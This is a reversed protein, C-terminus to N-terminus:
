TIRGVDRPGVYENVASDTSLASGGQSDLDLFFIIKLHFCCLGSSSFGSFLPSIQHHTLVLLMVTSQLEQPM